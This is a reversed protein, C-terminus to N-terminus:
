TLQRAGYKRRRETQRLSRTGPAGSLRDLRTMAKDPDSYNVAGRGISVPRMLPVEM